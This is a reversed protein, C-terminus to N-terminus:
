PPVPVRYIKTEHLSPPAWRWVIVAGEVLVVYVTLRAVWYLRVVEALGEPPPVTLGEPALQYLAPCLTDTEAVAFAPYLKEEHVPPREPDVFGPETVMFLALVTVAFKVCLLYVRVTFM